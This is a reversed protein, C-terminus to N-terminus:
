LEKNGLKPIKVLDLKSTRDPCSTISGGGIRMGLYEISQQGFFSKEIDLKVNHTLLRSLVLKIHKKHDEMNDSSVLIDDVYQYFIGEPLDQFIKQIVGSFLGPSCNLGQALSKYQYTGRFKGSPVVFSTFHCHEDIVRQRHFASSIDITSFYKKHGLERFPTMLDPIITSSPKICYKNVRRVDIVIRFGGKQKRVLLIPSSITSLSESILGSKLNLAVWQDLFDTEEQTFKRAYTPKLESPPDPRLSLSIPPTTMYHFEEGPNEKEFITKYSLLPTRLIKPSEELKQYFKLESLESPLLDIDENENELIEINQEKLHVLRRERAVEASFESLQPSMEPLETIPIGRSYGLDVNVDIIIDMDNPNTFNALGKGKILIAGNIFCDKPLKDSGEYISYEPPSDKIIIPVVIKSHKPVLIKVELLTKYMKPKLNNGLLEQEKDLAGCLKKMKNILRYQKLLTRTDMKSTKNKLVEPDKGILEKEQDVEIDALKKEEKKNYVKNLLIKGIPKERKHPNQKDMTKQLSSESVSEYTDELTLLKQCKSKGQTRDKALKNALKKNETEM